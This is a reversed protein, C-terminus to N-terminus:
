SAAQCIASSLNFLQDPWGGNMEPTIDTVVATHVTQEHLMARSLSHRRIQLKLAVIISNDNFHATFVFKQKLLIEGNFICRQLRCLTPRALTYDENILNSCDYDIFKLVFATPKNLM